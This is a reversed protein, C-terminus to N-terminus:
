PIIYTGTPSVGNSTNIFTSGASITAGGITGSAGCDTITAGSATTNAFVALATGGATLTVGQAKCQNLSSTADMNYVFGAVNKAAGIESTVTCSEASSSVMYAAIGGNVFGNANASMGQSVTCGTMSVDSAYGVLGGAFGRYTYIVQSDSSLSKCQGISAKSSSRGYVAGAIGGQFVGLYPSESNNNFNHNDIRGTNTCNSFVIDSIGDITSIDEYGDDSSSIFTPNGLLGVIGGVFSPRKAKTDKSNYYCYIYGSNSCNTFSASVRSAGLIGGLATLAQQSATTADNLKIVGSNSCDKFTTAYATNGTMYGGAIGGMQIKLSYSTSVLNSLIQAKNVVHDFTTAATMSSVGGAMTIYRNAQAGNEYNTRTVTGTTENTCYSITGGFSAAIGGIFITTSQCVSSVAGYNTCRTLTATGSTYGVIGGIYAPTINARAASSRYTVAIRNTTPNAETGSVTCGSHLHGVIGGEQVKFSGRIDMVKSAATSCKDITGSALYGVIGGVMFTKCDAESTINLGGNDESGFDGNSIKINGGFSCNEVKFGDGGGRAVIGGVYGYFESFNGSFPCLLNGDAYCDIIMGGNSHSVLGGIESSGPNDKNAGSYVNSFTVDAHSTVGSVTGKNWGVVPAFYGRASVGVTLSCTNSLTFNKVVGASGVGEFMPFTATLGSITHGDGDFVGNFYFDEEGNVGDKLGIGGKENFLASTTENFSIDNGLKVVLADGYTAAFAKSNYSQAFSVLEEASTIVLDSAAVGEGPIFPVDALTYLKGAELTVSSKKSKTMFHGGKDQIIIDFGSTYAGAPVVIFYEAGSATSCEYVVKVEKDAADASAGTLTANQYDITFSGKVQEDNRGRFRVALLDDTDAGEGTARLISVKVVACLHKLTVNTGDASYGAMPFMGDAFNGEEYTQFDPLTVKTANTRIGAPYIVNYPAELEGDFTFIATRTDEELGSLAESATGNIGVQDGNSWYVKRAGSESEGMYTKTEQEIGVQLVTKVGTSEQVDPAIEMQKACSALLGMAALIFIYRTKMSRM